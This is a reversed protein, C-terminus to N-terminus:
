LRADDQEKGDDHIARVAVGNRRLVMQGMDCGLDAAIVPCKGKLIFFVDKGTENLSEYNGQGKAIILDSREFRERFGM